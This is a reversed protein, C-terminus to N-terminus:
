RRPIPSGCGVVDQIRSAEGRLLIAQAATIKRDRALENVLRVFNSLDDCAKGTRNRDLDRLVDALKETLNSRVDRSVPLGGIMQILAVVQDRAGKVTVTFSQTVTNGGVDTATCVVTTTGIPFTSGPAPFCSVTVSCNDSASPTTYTVVAGTPGTANIIQSAPSAGLVPPTTDHVSVSQYQETTNGHSDTFTWVITYDGQGFSAPAVTTATLVGDCADTATPPSPLDVSCQSTLAPLLPLDPAPPLVDVVTIIQTASSANLAADTATWTRTIINVQHGTGSVSSDAFAISPPTGSDDTATASGTVSPDLSSGCEVTIDGPATLVPATVDATTLDLDVAFLTGAGTDGGAISTGYLRHDSGVALPGRLDAPDGATGGLPLLVTFGTGDRKVKFLTGAAQEGGLSAAGYLAGDSGEVVGGWLFGGTVASDFNALVTFNSGDRNLKYVTGYGGSGGNYTSGYLVGDSGEIVGALLTGGDTAATFTHLTEFGTGDMKIRYVTGDGQGGTYATGYLYHDQGEIVGGALTQGDDATTFNKLVEFNSGDQNIRFVTGFSVSNDGETTGYLKGDSGKIVGSSPSSGDTPSANIDFDRLISFASGDKTLRYLAGDGHQGGNFATGYLAGDDGEILGGYLFGGDAAGDFSRLVTYGTGDPNIQYVTGAQSTGGVTTTGYLVGGSELVRSQPQGGDTPADAFSHLRTLTPTAADVNLCALLITLAGWTTPSIKRTAAPILSVPIPHPSGIEPLRISQKM